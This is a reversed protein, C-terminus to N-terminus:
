LCNECLRRKGSRHIREIITCWDSWIAVDALRRQHCSWPQRELPLSCRKDHIRSYFPFNLKTQLQIAFVSVWLFWAKFSLTACGDPFEGFEYSLGGQNNIQLMLPRPSEILNRSKITSSKAQESYNGALISYVATAISDWSNIQPPSPTSIRNSAM